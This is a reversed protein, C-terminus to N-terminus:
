GHRLLGAESRPQQQLKQQNSYAMWLTGVIVIVVISVLLQYVTLGQDKLPQRRM